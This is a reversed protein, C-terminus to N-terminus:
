GITARLKEFLEKNKPHNVQWSKPDQKLEEFIVSLAQFREMIECNVYIGEDLLHEISTVELESWGRGLPFIKEGVRPLTPWQIKKCFIWDTVENEGTVCLTFEIM